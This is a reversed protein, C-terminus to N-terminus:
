CRIEDCSCFLRQYLALPRSLILAGAPAGAEIGEVDQQAQRRVTEARQELEVELQQASCSTEELEEAAQEARFREERLREEAGALEAEARAVGHERRQVEALMCTANCRLVSLCVTSVASHICSTALRRVAGAAAREGDAVSVETLASVRRHESALSALEAQLAAQEAAAAEQALQLRQREKEASAAAAAELVESSLRELLLQYTAQLDGACKGCCEDIVPAPLESFLEFLRSKQAQRVSDSELDVAPAPAPAPSSSSM